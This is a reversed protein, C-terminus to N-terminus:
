YCAMVMHHLRLAPAMTRLHRSVRHPRSAFEQFEELPTSLLGQLNAFVAEPDGSLLYAIMGGEGTLPAAIGAEFKERVDSMYKHLTTSTRLVKAEVPWVWRRHEGHVFGFDYTPPKAGPLSLSEFEACEHVPRLSSFGATDKHWVEQLDLYHNQTLSRELQDLPQCLDVRTLHDARLRDFSLWMWGLIQSAAGRAWEIPLDRHATDQPFAVMNLTHRATM